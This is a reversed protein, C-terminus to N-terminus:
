GLVELAHGVIGAARLERAMDLLRGPRAGPAAMYARLASYSVSTGVGTRPRFCDVITRERDSVAIHDDAGVPAQVRGLSFTAADFVHVKTPPYSIVPRHSGRPVALDVAGPMEDTLGWYQLASVLCIMGQPARASVALLDPMSSPGAGTRRFVGRSLEVLSQQDRLRYLAEWSLGAGRATKATFTAPLNDLRQRDREERTGILEM